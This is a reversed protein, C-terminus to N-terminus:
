VGINNEEVIKMFEKFKREINEFYRLALIVALRKRTETDAKISYAELEDKAAKLLQDGRRDLDTLVIVYQAIGDLERCSQKLNGSVTKIRSFGLNELARKDKKGEVFIWNEQLDSFIRRIAKLRKMIVDPDLKGM